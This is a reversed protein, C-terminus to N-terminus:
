GYRNLRSNAYTRNALSDRAAKQLPAPELSIMGGKLELAIAEASTGSWRKPPLPNVWIVQRVCPTLQNLFVATQEIRAQSYTATAAGADSLIIAITRNPHLRSLLTALAEAQAPNQWHYLCDTPYSTFRYIQAPYIRRSEIATIFPQFAPRFPITANSDDVLLLLEAARTLVPRLIIDSFLGEREIQAMTAEVDPEYQHGVRVRRRLARWATQVAELSVPIDTPTLQFAKTDTPSLKPPATRVAVPAQVNGEEQRVPM